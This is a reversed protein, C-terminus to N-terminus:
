NLNELYHVFYNMKLVFGITRIPQTQRFLIVREQYTLGYWRCANKLSGFKLHQFSLVFRYGRDFECKYSSIEMYFILKYCLIVWRLEDTTECTRIEPFRLLLVTIEYFFSSVM